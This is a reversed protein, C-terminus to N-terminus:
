PLKDCFIIIELFIKDRGESEKEVRRSKMAFTWIKKWNIELTGGIYM